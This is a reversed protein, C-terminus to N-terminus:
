LYKHILLLSYLGVCVACLAINTLLLPKERILKKREIFMLLLRAILYGLLLLGALAAYDM